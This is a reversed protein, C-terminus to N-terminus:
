TGVIHSINHMSSVFIILVCVSEVPSFYNFHFQYLMFVFHLNDGFLSTLHTKLPQSKLLM